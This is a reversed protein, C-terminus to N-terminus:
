ELGFSKHFNLHKFDMIVNEKSNSIGSIQNKILKAVFEAYETFFDLEMGKEFLYPLAWIGSSYLPLLTSNNVNEIMYQKLKVAESWSMSSHSWAYGQGKISFIESKNNIPALKSHYYLQPNYFTTPNETFIRVTEKMSNETEGPFGVIFSGLTLINFENFLKVCSVYDIDEKQMNKLISPHLSEIGLYVGICGSHKMLSVLEADVGKVCRFFSLWKFNFANRIMMECIAKFRKIPINFSDDIFIIYKVGIEHLQRMEKESSDVSRCEHGGAFQPYTCFACRYRCGRSTRMYVVNGFDNRDFLDWDIIEDDLTNHEKKRESVFVTRDKVVAINMLEFDEVESNLKIACILDYLTSEGQSDTIYYDAGISVLSMDRKKTPYSTCIEYVRPGGVLIKVNKDIARIYNIIEIIPTDTVYFTTTIAVCRVGADLLKFLKEKGSNFHNIFEVSLNRKRLFSALYFVGLNPTDFVNLDFKSVSAEALLWNLLGISTYHIDDVIVSNTMIEGYSGSIGKFMLQENAYDDFSQENVGIIVCDVMM